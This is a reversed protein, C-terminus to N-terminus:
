GAAPGRKFADIGGQVFAFVEDFAAMPNEPMDDKDFVRELETLAAAAAAAVVRARPSDREVGLDRALNDALLREFRGVIERDHQQLAPSAVIVRRRCQEAPDHHDMRELIDVLFGRLVDLATAEASRADMREELDAFVVHFDHFVVDEKSPFYSFFTRPAIDAAAAIDAITVHEFGRQDFLAMAQEVILERTRQKKRERLGPEGAGMAQVTAPEDAQQM